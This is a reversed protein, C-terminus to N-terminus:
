PAPARATLSIAQLAAGVVSAKWGLRAKHITVGERYFPGTASRFAEEAPKLLADGAESRGGGIAIRDPFLVAAYTALALGLYRGLPEAGAQVMAELCGRCGASCLPGDPQVIVHGLDGLGEHALRVIEGDVIMGGGAGTGLVLCLFRRSGIGAGVRYEGFCASNSDADLTVPRGLRAELAEKLPYNELGPLNSNYIMRSREANVFGAVSVGIAAAEGIGAAVRDLFADVGGSLDTPISSSELVEGAESVTATKTNTGGIDIGLAYRSAQKV